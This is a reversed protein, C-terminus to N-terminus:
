SQTSPPFTQSSGYPSYRRSRNARAIAGRLKSADDDNDALPDADYERVTDWGHKDAIKLLKNRKRIELAENQAIDKIASVNKFDCLAEIRNLNNLRESNFNFQRKCSDTKFEFTGADASKNGGFNGFRFELEDLILGRQIDLVQEIQSSIDNRMPTSPTGNGDSITDGRPLSDEEESM